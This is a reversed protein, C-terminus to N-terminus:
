LFRLCLYLAHEEFCSYCATCSHSQIEGCGQSGSCLTVTQTPVRERHGEKYDQVGWKEFGGSAAAEESEGHGPAAPVTSGAPKGM